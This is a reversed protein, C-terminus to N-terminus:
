TELEGVRGAPAAASIAKASWTVIAGWIREVAQAPCDDAGAAAGAPARLATELRRENADALLLLTRALAPTSTRWAYEGRVRRITSYAAAPSAGPEHRALRGVIGDLEAQASAVHAVVASDGPAPATHQLETLAAQQLAGACEHVEPWTYTIAVAAAVPAALLVSRAILFRQGALGAGM